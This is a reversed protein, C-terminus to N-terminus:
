LLNQRLKPKMCMERNSNKTINGACERIEIAFIITHIESLNFHENEKLICGRSEWLM